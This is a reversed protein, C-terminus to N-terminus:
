AEPAEPPMCTACLPGFDARPGPLVRFCTAPKECVMCTTDKPVILDVARGPAWPNAKKPLLWEDGVRLGGCAGCWAAHREEVEVGGVSIVGGDENTMIWRLTEPPHPCPTM